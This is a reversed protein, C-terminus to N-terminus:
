VVTIGIMITEEEVNNWVSHPITGNVLFSENKKVIVTEKDLLIKAEGQVVVFLHNHNHTHQEIPGGGNLSIYAISGEVIQGCSDFLKKAQFNIHDPPTIFDAM